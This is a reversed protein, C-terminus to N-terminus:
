NPKDLDKNIEEVSELNDSDEDLADKGVVDRIMTDTKKKVAVEALRKVLYLIMVAGIGIIVVWKWIVLEITGGPAVPQASQSSSVQALITAFFTLFTM